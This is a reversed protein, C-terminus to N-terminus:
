RDVFCLTNTIKFVQFKSQIKMTTNASFSSEKHWNGTMSSVIVILNVFVYRYQFYLLANFQIIRALNYTDYQYLKKGKRPLYWVLCSRRRLLYRTASSWPCYQVFRLFNSFARGCDCRHSSSRRVSLRLFKILELRDFNNLVLWIRHSLTCHTILLHGCAHFAQSCFASFIDLSFSGFSSIQPLGNFDHVLRQLVHCQPVLSSRHSCACLIIM